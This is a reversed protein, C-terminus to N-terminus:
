KVHRRVDAVRQAQPIGRSVCGPCLMQFAHLLVVRGRLRELTLPEPTNLWETTSWTPALTRVTMM